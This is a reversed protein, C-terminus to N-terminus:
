GHRPEEPPRVRYKRASSRRATGPVLTPRRRTAAKCSNSCRRTPRRRNDFSTTPFSSSGLDGYQLRRRRASGEGHSFRSARSIRVFLFGATAVARKGALVRLEFSRALLSRAGGLGGFTSRRGPAAAGEARFLSHLCPRLEGLFFARPQVQRHLPRPVGEVGPRGSILARFFRNAHEPIYTAHATDQEFPIADVVECPTTQITVGVGLEALRAFLEAYFDAVSRSRLPMASAAGRQDRDAPPSRHFRIRNSLNASRPPHSFHHHRAVDCLVAYAVFPQDLADPRAKDERCGADVHPANRVDSEMGSLAPAAVPKRRFFDDLAM